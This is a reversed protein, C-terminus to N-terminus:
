MSGLVQERRRRQEAMAAQWEPDNELMKMGRDHATKLGYGLGAATLTGLAVKGATHIKDRHKDYFNRLGSIVGSANGGARGRAAAAAAAARYYADEEKQQRIKEDLGRMLQVTERRASGKLMEDDEAMEARSVAAARARAFNELDSKEKLLPRIREWTEWGHPSNREDALRYAGYGLGATTALAAAVKLADKNEDYFKGLKEKASTYHKSLTSLIGSARGRARKVAVRSPKRSKKSTRKPAPRKVPKKGPKRSKKTKM